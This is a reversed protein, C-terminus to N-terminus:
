QHDHVAKLFQMLENPDDFLEVLARGNYMKEPDPQAAKFMEEFVTSRQALFGSYVSFLTDGAKIVLTGDPYWLDTSEQM